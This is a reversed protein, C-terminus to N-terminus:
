TRAKEGIRRERGARLNSLNTRHRWILLASMASVPAFVFATAGLLAVAIPGILAAIMSALSAFRTTVAVALWGLCCALGALPALALIAGLFTAVGKGGRFNFFVPLLHGVFAALGCCAALADGASPAGHAAALRGLWVGIAGKLADGVLTLAAAVRNGSRLVNTAGPNGSGYQRPDGLGM